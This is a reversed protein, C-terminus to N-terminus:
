HRINKRAWQFLKTDEIKKWQQMHHENNYGWMTFSSNRRKAAELDQEMIHCLFTELYDEQMMAPVLSDKALIPAKMMALYKEEDEDIARVADIIEEPSEMRSCDVFAEPNFYSAIDPAGWYLPITGAAWADIIKETVYGPFKSNEFAFSFRYGSQFDLKDAVPQGDPLNNKHRGGSDVKKYECLKDFYADRVNCGLNNSVVTCCFQKKALYYDDPHTHKELALQLNKEYTLFLPYRLYRDGFSIDDFAIAYDYVNFNPALAEGLFQIRVCDYKLYDTGFISCFIYDPHEKDLIVHYHKQLLRTIIFNDPDLTKWFDIYAIRIEKM